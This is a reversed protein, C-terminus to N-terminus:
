CLNLTRILTLYGAKAVNGAGEHRGSGFTASALPSDTANRLAGASGGHPAAQHPREAERRLGPGALHYLEWVNADGIIGAM